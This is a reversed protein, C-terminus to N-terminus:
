TKEGGARKARMRQVSPAKKAFKVFDAHIVEMDGGSDKLMQLTVFTGAITEIYAQLEQKEKFEPTDHDPMLHGLKEYLHRDEQVTATDKRLMPLRALKEELSLDEFGMWRDKIAAYHGDVINRYTMLGRINAQRHAQQEEPNVNAGPMPGAALDRLMQAMEEVTHDGTISIDDMVTVSRILPETLKLSKDGGVYYDRDVVRDIIHEGETTDKYQNAVAQVDLAGEYVENYRSMKEKAVEVRKNIAKQLNVKGTAMEFAASFMPSASKHFMEPVERAMADREETTIPTGDSHAGRIHASLREVETSERDAAARVQDRKAKYQAFTGEKLTYGYTEEKKLLQHRKSIYGGSAAQKDLFERSLHNEATSTKHDLYDIGMQYRTRFYHMRALGDPNRKELRAKAEPMKELLKLAHDAAKWSHIVRVQDMQGSGFGSPFTEDIRNMREVLQDAFDDAQADTQANLGDALRQNMTVDGQTGMQLLGLLDANQEVRERSEETLQGLARNEGDEQAEAVIHGMSIYLTSDLERERTRLKMQTGAEGGLQEDMKQKYVYARSQNLKKLEKRKQRDSLEANSQIEETKTAFYAEYNEHAKQAKMARQQGRLHEISGETHGQYHAHETRLESNDQQNMRLDTRKHHSLVEDM